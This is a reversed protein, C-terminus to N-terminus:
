YVYGMETRLRETRLRLDEKEFETAGCGTLEWNLILSMVPCRNACFYEKGSFPCGHCVDFHEWLISRMEQFSENRLTSFSTERINGASFTNTAASSVCPFVEGDAAIYAISRSRHERKTMYMLSIAYSFFKTSWERRRHLGHQKGAECGATIRWCHRAFIRIPRHRDRRRLKSIQQFADIPAQRLV